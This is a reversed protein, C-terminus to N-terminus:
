MSDSVISILSNEISIKRSFRSIEIAILNTQFYNGVVFELIGEFIKKKERLLDFKKIVIKKVSDFYIYFNFFFTSFHPLFFAHQM